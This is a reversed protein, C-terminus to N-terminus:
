VGGTRAVTKFNRCVRRYACYDDCLAPDVDFHGASAEAALGVMREAISPTGDTILRRRQAPRPEILNLPIEEQAVKNRSRLVRYVGKLVADPTLRDAFTAVMAMLYAAIQFETRGFAKDPKLLDAYRKASRSTKYDIVTLESIRDRGALTLEVRDIRGTLLIESREGPLRGELDALSFEFEREFYSENTPDRTEIEYDIAELIIQEIIAWRIDFFDPDPAVVRREAAIRALIPQVIALATERDRFDPGAEMIERLIEHVASGTEIASYEYDVDEDENLNLVRHAFFKFGCSAMEGFRSGSWKMPSDPVGLVIAALREDAVVRGNFRDVIALKRANPTGDNDERTPLALYRERNRTSEIRAAISDIRTDLNGLGRLAPLLRRRAAFGLFETDTFCQDPNEILHHGPASEEKLDGGLLAAVEDIFPSRAMTAGAEDGAPYSLVIKREPMSLALFFLFYDESNRHASTRLVPNLATPSFRGLRKRLAAALPRNIANIIRDPLIPDDANLRPFAGENLGIVFVLDFDLGRADLVSLARVAGDGATFGPVVLADAVAADVTAAFEEATVARGAAIWEAAQALQDLIGIFSSWARINTDTLDVARAPDFELTRMVGALQRVHGHVSVAGSLSAMADAVQLLTAQDRTHHELARNLRDRREPDTAEAARQSLEAAAATLCVALPRSDEALYGSSRLLSGCAAIRRSVHPSTLIRELSERNMGISVSKLIDLATRVPACAALRPAQYMLIPIKFRAFTAELVGVYPELDRAVIATRGPTVWGAAITRRITRCVEEIEAERSVARIIRVTDDAPPPIPASDNPAEFVQELIFGLRGSRGGRRVFDPLVKDAISEDGVFRTWTLDIFRSADVRYSQAQVTIEADGIIRILATVIMFQLLSYDYVEAVLLSDVGRLMRPREGGLEAAQLRELVTRERDHADALGRRGLIAEYDAFVGAVTHLREAQSGDLARAADTIESPRLAASKFRRIVGQLHSVVGPSTARTWSGNRLAEEFALREGIPDLAIREPHAEHWILDILQPFTLIKHDWQCAERSSRRLVDEVKASTPYISLRTTM